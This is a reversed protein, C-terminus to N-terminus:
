RRGRDGNHALLPYGAQRTATLRATRSLAADFTQLRRPRLEGILVDGLRPSRWAPEPAQDYRL